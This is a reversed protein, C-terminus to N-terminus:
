RRLRMRQAEGVGWGIVVVLPYISLRGLLMLAMTVARAPAALVTADAFGSLDGLGPGATALASIAGSVATPVDSGLSALAFVGIAAALVWLIQFTQVRILSSESVAAGSVKVKVVAQPHLQMVLERRVIGLLQIVRLMRFGGGASGAMSGVGILILLLTQPAQVWQGWDTVRFGTTSMASAVTFFSQRVTAVGGGTDQWTWASVLMTAGLMLGAYLKLETSRWLAQAQGRVIWVLVAVSMGAVAMAGAGVWEVAASDFHAFSDRYNSFGGTSATTLGFTAADRAGMGALAYAAMVVLTLGGYALVVRRTTHSWASSLVARRGRGEAVESLRRQGGFTPVVVLAFVLAGFGGAWQTVARWWLLWAPLAEPDLVTLSTTTFGAVSEFLADDVREVEGSAWYVVTSVLVLAVAIVVVSTLVRVASRHWPFRVRSPDSM